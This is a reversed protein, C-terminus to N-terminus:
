SRPIDILYYWFNSEGVHIWEIQHEDKIDFSKNKKSMKILEKIKSPKSGRFYKFIDNSCVKGLRFGDGKKESNVVCLCFTKTFNLDYKVQEMFKIDKIFDYMRKSHAGNTPFKLEVAFKENKSKNLVVLDMEKKVFDKKESEKFEDVNKEFKVKFGQSELKFRLFIGLEHQLSFENYINDDCIISSNMFEDIYTKLDLM